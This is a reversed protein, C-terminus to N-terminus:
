FSTCMDAIMTSEVEGVGYHSQAGQKAWTWASNMWPWHVGIEKDWSGADWWYDGQVWGTWEFVTADYLLFVRIGECVDRTANLQGIAWKYAGEYNAIDGDCHGDTDSSDPNPFGINFRGGTTGCAGDTRRSEGAVVGAGLILAFVLVFASSRLTANM